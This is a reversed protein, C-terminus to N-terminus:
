KKPNGSVILLFMLLGGILLYTFPTSPNEKLVIRMHKITIIFAWIWLAAWSIVVLMLFATFIINNEM